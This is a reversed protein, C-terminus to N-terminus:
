RNATRKRASHGGLVTESTTGLESRGALGLAALMANQHETRTSPIWRGEGCARLAPPANAGYCLSVRHIGQLQDLMAATSPADVNALKLRRQAVKALLLALVVVLAHSRLAADGRHRLPLMSVGNPNKIDRFFSENHSQVRSAHVIQEAPWDTRNTVLRTRGLVYEHLHKWAAESETFRLVPAGEGNEIKAQFLDEMHERSLAKAVRKRLAGVTLPKVLRLGKRQRDLLM